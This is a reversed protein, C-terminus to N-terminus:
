EAQEAQAQDLAPPEVPMVAQPRVELGDDHIAGPRPTEKGAPARHPLPEVLSAARAARPDGHDAHHALDFVGAEVLGVLPRDVRRHQGAPDRRGELLGSRAETVHDHARARVRERQVYYAMVGYIGVTASTREITPM